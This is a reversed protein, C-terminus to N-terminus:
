IVHIDFMNNGPRRQKLKDNANNCFITMHDVREESLKRGLSVGRPLCQIWM